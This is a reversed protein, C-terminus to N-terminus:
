TLTARIRRVGRGVSSEKAIKFTGLKGTSEVHPGGCVEKSFNEISYVKVQDDYKQAFFALAGQDKAEEINMVDAKIPLDEKIKENVITEVQQLEEGTMKEPHAFDFRLREPTINSGKQQVHEGLTQRLASHLLHTTTHYKTVIESHDALGGAFKKEAGARSKEQHLNFAESFQKMFLEEDVTQEHAHLEELTLEPPFGHTEYMFFALEGWCDGSTQTLPAAPSNASETKAAAIFKSLKQLGKGLTTRFQIEEADLERLIVKETQSIEPFLDGYKDIVVKAVTTALNQKINLHQSHRIAKRVLRRTVYGQDKNFPPAGDAICFTAARIHDAIIRMSRTIEESEGYKKGSLEEIKKIIPQFLDTKYNDDDFGNIVATVRAVGMGTDVSQQALPEYTRDAKRNYEM